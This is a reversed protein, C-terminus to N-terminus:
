ISFYLIRPHSELFRDGNGNRVKEAAIFDCESLSQNIHQMLKQNTGM